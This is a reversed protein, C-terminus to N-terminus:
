GNEERELAENRRRGSSHFILLYATYSLSSNEKRGTERDEERRERRERGTGSIMM